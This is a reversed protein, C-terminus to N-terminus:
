LQLKRLPRWTGGNTRAVRGDYRCWRGGVRKERTTANTVPEHHRQSWTHAYTPYENTRGKKTCKGNRGKPWGSESKKNNNRIGATTSNRWRGNHPEHQVLTRPRAVRVAMHRTPTDYVAHNYALNARGGVNTVFVRRQATREGVTHRETNKYAASDCFTINRAHGM